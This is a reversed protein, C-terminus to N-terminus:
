VPHEATVPPHRQLCRLIGPDFLVLSLGDAIIHHIDVALISMSPQTNVLGVRLLPPQEPDFPRIFTKPDFHEITLELNDRIRQVPQGDVQHIGTRLSEHRRILRNFTLELKVPDVTGRIEWAFPINYATASADLRQLVYLRKQASSLEYYDQKELPHIMTWRERGSEKLYRSLGRITPRRFIEAMPLRVNFEKHVKAAM